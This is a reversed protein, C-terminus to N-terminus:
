IVTLFYVAVTRFARKNNPSSIHPPLLFAVVYALPQFSWLCEFVSRRAIQTLGVQRMLPFPACTGTTLALYYHRQTEECPLCPRCTSGAQPLFSSGAAFTDWPFAYPFSYLLNKFSNAAYSSVDLPLPHDKIDQRDLLRVDRLETRGQRRRVTRDMPFLKQAMLDRITWDEQLYPDELWHFEDEWDRDCYDVM